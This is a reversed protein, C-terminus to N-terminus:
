KIALYARLVQKAGKRTEESPLDLFHYPYMWGYHQIYRDSPRAGFLSDSYGMYVVLRAIVLQSLQIIHEAVPIPHMQVPQGIEKTILRAIAQNDDEDPAVVTAPFGLVDKNKGLDLNESLEKLLFVQYESDFIVLTVADIYNM